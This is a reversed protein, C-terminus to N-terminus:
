RDEGTNLPLHAPRRTAASRAAAPPDGHRSPALPVVLVRGEVEACMLWHAPPTAPYFLPDSIWVEIIDDIGLNPHKFLHAAQADIEFRDEDGLLDPDFREEAVETM